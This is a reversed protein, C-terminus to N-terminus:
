TQFIKWLKKKKRKEKGEKEKEEGKKKRRKKKERVISSVHAAVPLIFLANLGWRGHGEGQGLLEGYRGWATGGAGRRRAGWSCGHLKLEPWPRRGHLAECLRTKRQPIVLVSANSRGRVIGVRLKIRFL